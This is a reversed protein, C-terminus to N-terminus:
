QLINMYIIINHNLKIRQKFKDEKTKPNPLTRVIILKFCHSFNFWPHFQVGVYVNLYFFYIYLNMYYFIIHLVLKSPHRQNVKAKWTKIQIQGVEAKM